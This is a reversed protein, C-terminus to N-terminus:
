CGGHVLGTVFKTSEAGRQRLVFACAHMWLASVHVNVGLAVGTGTVLFQNFCAPLCLSGM